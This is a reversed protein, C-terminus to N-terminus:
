KKQVRRLPLDILKAVHEIEIRDFPEPFVYHYNTQDM